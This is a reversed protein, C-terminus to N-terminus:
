GFSTLIQRESDRYVDGCRYRDHEITVMKFVYGTALVRALVVDYYGDVDLSLYDIARPFNQLITSYNAQTADECLLPNVRVARWNEAYTDVIDISVGEWGLNKELFYTNNITIPESAGIELYYGKNEKNLLGYFTSYIFKDQSAQSYFALQDLERCVSEELSANTQSCKVLFMGLITMQSFFKKIQM